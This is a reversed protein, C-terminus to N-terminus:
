RDTPAHEAPTAAHNRGTVAPALSLDPKGTLTQNIEIGHRYYDPDIVPDPNAAAIWFTALGAVVVVAPGGVVMWVFGFKWWPRPDHAPANSPTKSM